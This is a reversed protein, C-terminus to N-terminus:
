YHLWTMPPNQITLTAASRLFAFCYIFSDGNYRLIVIKNDNNHKNDEKEKYSQQWHQKDNNLNNSQLPKAHPLANFLSNDRSCM